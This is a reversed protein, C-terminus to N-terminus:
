CDGAYFISLPMAIALWGPYHTGVLFVPSATNAGAGPAPCTGPAPALMSGTTTTV